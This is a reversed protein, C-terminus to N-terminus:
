KLDARLRGEDQWWKLWRQQDAGFQQGTIHQLSRAIRNQYTAPTVHEGKGLDGEKFAVEFCGILGEVAGKHKREGLAGIAMDLVYHDSDTKIVKVLIPIARPDPLRALRFVVDYRHHRNADVLMQALQAAENEQDFRALALRAAFLRENEQERDIRRGDRVIQGKGAVLDRLAPLARDDGIEALDGIIDPLEVHTLLVPVADRAKLEALIYACREFSDGPDEQRTLRGENGLRKLLEILGSIARADGFQALAHWTQCDATGNKVRENLLPVVKRCKWEVLTSVMGFRSAITFSTGDAWGAETLGTVPRNDSSIDLMMETLWNPPEHRESQPPWARYARSMFWVVNSLNTWTAYDTRKMLDVFFMAASQSGAPAAIGAFLLKMPLIKQALM